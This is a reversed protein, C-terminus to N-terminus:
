ALAIPLYHVSNPMVIAVVHGPRIGATHYLGAALRNTLAEATSLTLTASPDDGDIYLPRLPQSGSSDTFAPNQRVRSFFFAPLDSHEPVVIDPLSSKVGSYVM